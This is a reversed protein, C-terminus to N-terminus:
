IVGKKYLGRTFPANIEPTKGSKISCLVKKCENENEFTFYCLLFDVSNFKGDSVDAVLIDANYIESVAGRCVIPMKRGTRDTLFGGGSKCTKCSRVTNLPCARTIMLPLRGFVLAGLNIESSLASIDRQSLEFSAVASTVGNESLCTLAESNYTNMFAGLMMKMDLKKAINIQGLNQVCVENVGLAKVESMERELAKDSLFAHRPLEAILKELIEPTLNEKNKIIQNIPLIAKDCLGCNSALQGMNEFRAYISQTKNTKTNKTIIQPTFIQRSPAKRRMQSLKEVAQRRLANVVSPALFVDDEVKFDFQEIFYPTSGLRSLNEMVKQKNFKSDQTKQVKLSAAAVNSRNDELKLTVSDGSSVLSVKLPVSQREKRYLEHLLPLATKASEVDDKTRYGFMKDSIKGKYYGDTFGSRSFVDECLKLLERNDEGCLSAKILSVAAAVYEPRKMRGEIKFSTVGMDALERIYSSLSMDKLSLAYAAKEGEIGFDLRCPQACRGRNGSRSGLLASFYCQGSICMCHAGHVFVETEIDSNRTIEEIEKGSLERALVVRSIGLERAFKVGEASAIGMQTSAHIPLDPCIKRVLSVIGLDSVILADVGLRAANEVLEAAAALEKDTVATNLALYVKVDREHCFAVTEALENLEFNQASARASFQKAGLYVANAGCRVAAVVSDFSGAPALIEVGRADLVASSGM